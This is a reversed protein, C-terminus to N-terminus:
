RRGGFLLRLVFLGGLFALAYLLWKIWVPQGDANADKDMGAETVYRADGQKLAVVSKTQVDSKVEGNEMVPETGGTPTGTFGSGYTRTTDATVTVLNGPEIKAFARDDLLLRGIANLATDTSGFLFLVVRNKNWPSLVEEMIGQQGNHQIQSLVEEGKQLSAGGPSLVVKLKNNPIQSLWTTKLEEGGIVVINKGQKDADTVASAPKVAFNFGTTTPSIRGLRNVAQLLLNWQGETPADPIVFLTQSLDPHATFPYGNDNLFGLDPLPTRVEADFSMASSNHITGWIHKDTVFRCEDFKEPFIHFRYEVDNYTYVDEIPIDIEDVAATEGAKNALPISRVAKGNVLIELKSQTNELQSSYSYVTKLKARSNARLWLDPMRKVTYFIPLATYSRTTYTELGLEEWTAGKGQIFGPWHRFPHVGLPKHEKVITYTGSMLRNGPAQALFSGAKKVGEPTKGTVVLIVKDNFSPHRVLAILGDTEGLEGISKPLSLNNLAPNEAPTGVIILHSKASYLSGPEVPAVHSPHWSVANGIAATVMGLASLSDASFRGGPPLVYGAKNHGYGLPDFIPYPFQALDPQAAKLNYNLMLATEPLLQTWLDDALPDECRYTYHQDAQFTLTNEDKLVDPPIPVDVVTKNVNAKTLPITKLIRNNVLINLSSREPLLSVSHQFVVRIKSAGSVQWSKPRTFFYRRETKVTRLIYGERDGFNKLNMVLNHDDQQIPIALQVPTELLTAAQLPQWLPGLTVACVVALVALLRSVGGLTLSSALRAFLTTPANPRRM